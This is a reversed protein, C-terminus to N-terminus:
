WVTTEKELLPLLTHRPRICVLLMMNSSLYYQWIIYFRTHALCCTGFFLLLGLRGTGVMPGSRILGHSRHDTCLDPSRVLIRTPVICALMLGFNLQSPCPHYQLCRVTPCPINDRDRLSCLRGLKNNSGKLKRGGWHTFFTDSSTNRHRICQKPYGVESSSKWM